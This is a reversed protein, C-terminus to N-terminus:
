VSMGTTAASTTIASVLESNSNQTQETTDKTAALKAEDTGGNDMTKKHEETLAVPQSPKAHEQTGGKAVNDNYDKTLGSQETKTYRMALLLTAPTTHAKNLGDGTYYSRGSADKPMSAWEKSVNLMFQEESIKGALYDQYGRKDLLHEAMRDQMKEDFLEDGKLGMEKKLSSLTKNIIQYKGAASSPSGHNVYSKQWQLVKDISMSTLNVRQVGAGYVRNYDGNSEKDAILELLPNGSEAYRAVVQEAEAMDVKSIDTQKYTKSAAEYASIEGSHYRNITKQFSATDIHFINAFQEIAQKSGVGQGHKMGTFLAMIFTFIEMGQMQNNQPMNQTNTSDSQKQQESLTAFLEADRLAPNNTNTKSSPINMNGSEGKM